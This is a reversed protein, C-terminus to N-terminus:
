FQIIKDIATGYRNLVKMADDHDVMALFIHDYRKLVEPDALVAMLEDLAGADMKDLDDIMLIRFGSLSNLMDLILFIVLLQEGSSVQPLSVFDMSAKAKCFFKIGKDVKIAIEFNLRLKKALENCHEELPTLVSQIIKERIGSKPSLITLVAEIVELQKKL